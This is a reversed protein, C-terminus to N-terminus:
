YIDGEKIEYKDHYEKEIREIDLYDDELLRIGYLVNKKKRKLALLEHRASETLPLKPESM